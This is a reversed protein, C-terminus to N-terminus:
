NCGCGGGGGAGGDLSGEKSFNVHRGLSAELTTIMAGSAGVLALEVGTAKRLRALAAADLALGGRLLGVTKTEYSIPECASLVLAEGPPVAEVLPRHSGHFHLTRVDLTARERHGPNPAAAAADAVVNGLTDAIQLFGLGLLTRNEALHENLDRPDRRVLYLRKLAPDRAMIALKRAVDDGDAALQDELRGLASDLREAAQERVTDEVRQSLLYISLALPVLAVISFALILRSRLSTM